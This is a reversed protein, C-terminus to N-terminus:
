KNYKHEMKEVYSPETKIWKTLSQECLCKCKLSPVKQGKKPGRGITYIKVSIDDPVCTVRKRCSVCYFQREKLKPM